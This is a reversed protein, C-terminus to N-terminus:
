IKAGCEPCVGSTNGTLDYGCGQCCHPLIRRRDLWFAFVTLVASAIIVSRIHLGCMWTDAYFDLFFEDDNSYCAFGDPPPNHGHIEIHGHYLDWGYGQWQVRCYGFQSLLWSGAASLTLLLGTWKAARWRRRLRAM